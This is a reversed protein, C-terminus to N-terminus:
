DFDIRRKLLIRTAWEYMFLSIMTTPASKLVSPILGHYFGRLGENRLIHRAMQGSSESTSLQRRRKLLDLPYVAAKSFAGAALGCAAGWNKDPTLDRAFNYGAFSLGAGTAVCVVSLLGGGFFGSAGNSMVIHTIEAILSKFRPTDNSILRTRLLDFPYSVCTALCGALAGIALSHLPAPVRVGHLKELRSLRTNLMSYFTFQSAGYVLYMAEAPINGKWFAVIGERRYINTMTSVIGSYRAPDTQLQMRIKVVDIPAVFFRAIVGSM